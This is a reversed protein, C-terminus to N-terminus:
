RMYTVLDTESTGALLRDFGLFSSGLRGNPLHTPIRVM